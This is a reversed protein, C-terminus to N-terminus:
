VVESMKAVTFTLYSEAESDSVHEGVVGKGRYGGNKHFRFDGDVVCLLLVYKNNFDSGLNKLEPYYELLNRITEEATDLNDCVGYTPVRVFGLECATSFGELTEVSQVNGKDAFLHCCICDEVNSFHQDLFNTTGGIFSVGVVNNVEKAVFDKGCIDKYRQLWEQDHNVSQADCPLMWM